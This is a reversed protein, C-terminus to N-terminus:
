QFAQFMWGECFEPPTVSNDVVGSTQGTCLFGAAELARRCTLAIAAAETYSNAWVEVSVECIDLGGFGTLHNVIKTQPTDLLAYPFPSDQAGQKPMIRDALLATVGSNAGLAATISELATM